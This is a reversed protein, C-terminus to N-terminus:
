LVNDGVKWRGKGLFAQFASQNSSTFFYFVLKEARQTYFNLRVDAGIKKTVKDGSPGIRLLRVDSWATTVHLHVLPEGNETESPRSQGPLLYAVMTEKDGDEWEKDVLMFRGHANIASLRENGITNLVGLVLDVDALDAFLDRITQGALNTSPM